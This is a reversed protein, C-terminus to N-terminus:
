TMYMIHQYSPQHPVIWVAYAPRFINFYIVTSSLLLVNAGRLSYRTVKVPVFAFVCRWRNYCIMCTVIYTRPTQIYFIVGHQLPLLMKNLSELNTSVIAWDTYHSGVPQVTRSRIGTPALNEAGAWVPGKTWGIEQVVPVQDKRPTFLPRPTFSVEWGRRTGHDHFPIAIGRSGRRATRGTCISLAQLTTCKVKVKWSANCSTVSEQLINM